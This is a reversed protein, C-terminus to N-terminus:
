AVLSASAPQKMCCHSPHEVARIGCLDAGDGARELHDPLAPAQQDHAVREEPDRAERVELAREPDGAVHERLPELVEDGLVHELLALAAVEEGGLAALEGGRQVLEELPAIAV